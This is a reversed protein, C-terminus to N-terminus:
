PYWTKDAELPYADMVTLHSHLYDSYDSCNCQNRQVFQALACQELHIDHSLPVYQIFDDNQQSPKVCYMVQHWERAPTRGLQM